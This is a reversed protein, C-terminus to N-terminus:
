IDGDIIDAVRQRDFLQEDEPLEPYGDGDEYTPWEGFVEPYLQKAGMEIQFLNMIPGQYRMGQAYVRDNQVATLDSGVPHDRLTARMESMSRSPTLGWLHFIADPDAEAMTEFDVQGWLSGWDEEAFADVAGLPRTDALWYGPKNLHYTYFSEGDGAISVRVATPREDEPPLDRQVTDVLDTHVQELAEYREHADFVGAVGEFLEWLDYYEYDDYGEPPSARTGSYFNGFWPGIQTEVEEIDGRDWNQQTSAWAPDALHVDSDLEFLLERSLGDSLPDHLNEWDFSVGDLHRYYHNMTTGSMEPVYVANVADGHGLSVAMDAYQPFVTFVTEPVADFAVTGMPSLTVSYSGGSTPTGEGSQGVFDACGALGLGAAVAGGYQLTERRTRGSNEHAM